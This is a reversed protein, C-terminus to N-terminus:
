LEEEKEPGDSEVAKRARERIGAAYREKLGSAVQKVLQNDKWPAVRKDVMANVEAVAADVSAPDSPNFHVSGITGDLVKLADSAERLGRQLQDLGKIEFKM